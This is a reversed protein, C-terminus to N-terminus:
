HLLNRPDQAPKQAIERLDEVRLHAYRQTMAPGKHGLIQQLRYMDGGRQVYWSAFTHRLDHFTFDVIGAKAAYRSVRKSVDDVRMGAGTGTRFILGTGRTGFRRIVADAGELPIVRPRGAKTQRITILDTVFNVDRWELGIVEGLRMGRLISMEAISKLPEPLADRLTAWERATLFRHRSNNVEIPDLTRCPNDKVWEHRMAVQFLGSLVARYHKLTSASVRKAQEAEFQAIRSRSIEDMYSQGFAEQLVKLCNQYSAITSLAKRSVHEEIYAVAADSFPVRPTGGVDLKRYQAQLEALYERAEGKAATRASRRIEEGRWQFRVWWVGGRKYISAM